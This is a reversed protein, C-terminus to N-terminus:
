TKGTDCDRHHGANRQIQLGLGVEIASTQRHGARWGAIRVSAPCASDVSKAGHAHLAVSIVGDIIVNLHLDLYRLLRVGVNSGDVSPVM